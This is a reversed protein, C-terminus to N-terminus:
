LTYHWKSACAPTHVKDINYSRVCNAYEQLLINALQTINCNKRRLSTILRANGKNLKITIEM